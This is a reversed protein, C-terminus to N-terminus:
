KFHQVVLLGMVLTIFLYTLYAHISGSQILKVRSGLWLLGKLSPEYLYKEVLHEVEGWYAMGAKVYPYEGDKVTVQRKPRYIMSFIVRFSKSFGTATYEMRPKLEPIGCAWTEGIREGRRGGLGVSVAWAVGATVLLATAIMGVSLMSLGEYVPAIVWGGGRVVKEALTIGTVSSSVRDLLSLMGGAFLGLLLCAMALGGMGLRMPLSAEEACRAEHSRPMALFTIGFAKVFCAAALAGTLALMAGSLSILIKSITEPLRLSLLLSQFTLWESVFGNFPPLASISIAGILFFFATQPMRHILGGMEEMNKTHVTSVVAGAGLFLLGKFVAHNITHYLGAILALASFEKLGLSSFILAAGFGILIIGINEISHFALLRKLDHEMLAYMVGLLASLSALLLVLGGWWVPGPGLLDFFFRAMGYIGMKIIVGSMLASMNSPAAPHAVPLWIHLPILGAKVGFGILASLFVLSRLGEPMAARGSRFTEFGTGGSSTTLVLFAVFLFVTGIRSIVLYLNAARVSEPNEQEYGVLLYAFFVMTEWAILFTIADGALVVGALSVLLLNFHLGFRGIRYRKEYEKLYGLSFLAIMFGLLSIVLLFFASLLDLRLVLPSFPLSVPFGLLLPAEGPIAGLFAVLSLVLGAGSGMLTGVMSLVTARSNLRFPMFGSLLGGVTYSSLSLILLLSELWILM